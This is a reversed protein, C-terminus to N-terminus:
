ARGGSRAAVLTAPIATSALGLFAAAGAIAGHTIALVGGVLAVIWPLLIMLFTVSLAFPVHFEAAAFLNKELLKVNSHVTNGWNARLDADMFLRSRFGAARLLKSIRSDDCVTLRLTEYGGVSRFADTRILNFAGTGGFSGPRDRNVGGYDANFAALCFNHFCAEALPTPRSPRFMPSVHEVGEREALRIARAITTPEMRLDADALLIWETGIARSGVHIAHCKGLWGDPLATVHLATVRDDEAALRDVLESTGDTSRDDVITVFVRIGTQALVARVTPEIEDVGDRVPIVVTVSPPDSETDAAPLRRIELIERTVKAATILYLGATLWCLVELAVM